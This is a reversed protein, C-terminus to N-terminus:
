SFHHPLYFKGQVWIENGKGVGDGFSNRPSPNCTGKAEWIGQLTLESLRCGCDQDVNVM